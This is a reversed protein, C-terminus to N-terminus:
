VLLEPCCLKPNRGRTGRGGRHISWDSLSPVDYRSMYTTLTHSIRVGKFTINDVPHSQSGAFHIVCEHQSIEILSASLDLGTPPYYYLVSSHKDLFWEGPADLEEFVNEIFFRSHHNVAAPASSWKAGLQQGGEGFWLIHQDRDVGALRFMLNGWYASQFIHIEADQANAWQRPTFTDPDYIVGRPAGGSFTMDDDSGAFPDAISDPLAGAAQLYGSKGTISRDYNPYRARIQRKGEVFLQTFCLGRPVPCKMIGDRYSTWTCTLRRGGSLLVAEDPYAAYTVQNGPTGSDSPTFTLPAALYHTGERLWVSVPRQGAIRRVAEQARNLTAFPRAETGPCRDDGDPSVYFANADPSPEERKAEARLDSSGPVIGTIAASGTLKISERRDM